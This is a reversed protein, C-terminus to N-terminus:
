TWEQRRATRISAWACPALRRWVTPCSIAANARYPWVHSPPSPVAGSLTHGDPLSLAARCPFGHLLRYADREVLRIDGAIGARDQAKRGAQREAHIQDLRRSEVQGVPRELAGAHIIEFHGRQRTMDIPRRELFPAGSFPPPEHEEGGFAGQGVRIKGESGAIDQKEPAFRGAYGVVDMFLRVMAQEDRHWAAATRQVDGYRCRHRGSFRDPLNGGATGPLVSLGFTRHFQGFHTCTARRSM